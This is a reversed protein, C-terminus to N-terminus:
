LMGARKWMPTMNVVRGTRMARDIGFCTIASKVGDEMGTPPEARSQAAPCPRWLGPVAIIVAGAIARDGM